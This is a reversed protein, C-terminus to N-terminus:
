DVAEILEIAIGDPGDLRRFKVGARVGIPGSANAGDFGDIAWCAFALHDYPHGPSSEIMVDEFVDYFALAVNSFTAIASPPVREDDIEGQWPEDSATCSAGLTQEYWHCAGAGDTSHLHLHFPADGVAIPTDRSAELDLHDKYSQGFSLRGWGFHWLGAANKKEAARPRAVVMRTQGFEIAPEGWWEGHRVDDPRFIREYFNAIWPPGWENVHLHHLHCPTEIATGRGSQVVMLASM